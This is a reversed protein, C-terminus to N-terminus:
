VGADFPEGPGRALLERLYGGLRRPATEVAALEGAAFWRLEEIDEAAVDIEPAPEFRETRVLYHRETQGGFGAMDAFRHTRTWLLPGLEVDRLGLEERLERRLAQEDSEGPEVGGGPSAWVPGHRFEFRTLLTRGGPDVVLARVGERLPRGTARGALDHFWVLREEWP